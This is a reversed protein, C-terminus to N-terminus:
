LYLDRVLQHAVEGRLGLLFDTDNVLICHLAVHQVLALCGMWEVRGYEMDQIVEFVIILGKGQVLRCYM